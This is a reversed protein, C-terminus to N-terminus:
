GSAREPLEVIIYGDYRLVIQELDTEHGAALVLRRPNARVAYVDDADVLVLERCRAAACECRFGFPGPLGDASLRLVENQRFRAIRGTSLESM